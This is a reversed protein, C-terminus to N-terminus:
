IWDYNFSISIRERKSQLPVTPVEHRLWSEFLIVDGAKPQIEFFPQDSRPAKPHRPPQAMFRELRPDEFKIPSTGPPTSVYFTGSVVALPHLHLSHSAGAPMINVWCSVMRLRGGGLNWNQLRAFKMVHKDLLKELESFPPFQQHLADLSGYSTFGGKYHSSSWTQGEEDIDRIIKADRELTRRLRSAVTGSLASQYVRTPFLTHIAVRAELMQDASDGIM